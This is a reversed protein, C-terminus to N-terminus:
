EGPQFNVSTVPAGVAVQPDRRRMYTLSDAGSHWTAIGVDPRDMETLPAGYIDKLTKLLKRAGAESRDALQLTVSSLKGASDFGYFATFNYDQWSLSSKLGVKADRSQESAQDDASANTISGGVATRLEHINMGWRASGLPAGADRTPAAEQCGLVLLAFAVRLNM